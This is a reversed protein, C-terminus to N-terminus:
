LVNKSMSFGLGVMSFYFMYTIPHLEFENDLGKYIILFMIFKSLEERPAVIWFSQWFSDTFYITDWFPFFFNIFNLIVVSFIGGVLFSVSYKIKLSNYPSALYLIFGYLLPPLILAIFSILDFGLIM